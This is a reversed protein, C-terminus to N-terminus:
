PRLRRQRRAEGARKTHGPSRALAVFAASDPRGGVPIGELRAGLASTREVDVSQTGDAAFRRVVDLAAHPDYGAAMLLPVSGADAAREQAPDLRQRVPGISRRAASMRAACFHGLLEHAMEHAVIAAVEAESHCAAITGRSVYIRGGGVSFANAGDDDLLLFRWPATPAPAHAALNTGITRVLDLIPGSGRVPWSRELLAATREARALEGTCAARPPIREIVLTTAGGRAPRNCGLLLVLAGVLALARRRRDIM